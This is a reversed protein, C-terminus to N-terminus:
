SGASEIEGASPSSVRIEGHEPDFQGNNGEVIIQVPGNFQMEKKNNNQHLHLNLTKAPQEAGVVRILDRQMIAGAKILESIVIPVHRPKKSPKAGVDFLLDLEYHILLDIKALSDTYRRIAHDLIVSQRDGMREVIRKRRQALYRMATEPRIGLKGAIATPGEGNCVMQELKVLRAERTAVSVSPM